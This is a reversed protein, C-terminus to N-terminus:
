GDVLEGYGATRVELGRRRGIEKIEVIPFIRGAYVIRHAVTLGEVWRIRFAFAPETSAGWARIYEATTAQLIEARVTAFDAWGEVVNGHGDDTLTAVQLIISRDLNGARM